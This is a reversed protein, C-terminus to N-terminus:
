LMTFLECRGCGHIFIQYWKPFLHMIGFFNFGNEVYGWSLFAHM